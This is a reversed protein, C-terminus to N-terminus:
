IAESNAVFNTLVPRQGSANGVIFIFYFKRDTYPFYKVVILNNKKHKITLNNKDFACPADPFINSNYSLTMGLFNYKVPECIM